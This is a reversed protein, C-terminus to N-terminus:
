AIAASGTLGRWARMSSSTAAQCNPRTPAAAMGSFLLLLLLLVCCPTAPSWPIPSPSSAAPTAAVTIAPIPAHAANGEAAVALAARGSATASVAASDRLGPIANVQATRPKGSNPENHLTVVISRHAPLQQSTCLQLNLKKDRIAARVSKISIHAHFKSPVNGNTPIHM